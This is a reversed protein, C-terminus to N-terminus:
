ENLPPLSKGCAKIADDLFAQTEGLMGEQPEDVRLEVPLLKTQIQHSRQQRCNFIDFRVSAYGLVFLVHAVGSIMVQCGLGALMSFTRFPFLQTETDHDYMPFKIVSPIGLMPDGCLFRLLLSVALGALSGYTNSWPLWLVCTLQPFLVVYMLDCCLVFLGYITTSFIAVLTGLVGFFVIFFRFMWLMEKSSAQPRFIDQYINKTFITASSLFISDASSMVAGAIACLGIISVPLPVLFSLVMPLMYSKRDDPIPLPGDYATSNWDAASGAVGLVFAPVSFLFSFVAAFSTSLMAVRPSKCALIRQYFSQWTIGGFVLLCLVDAYMWETGAPVEGIWTSSVSTLNVHDSSMAYPCALVLGFAVMLIQIVDTYAVAILGGLFTYVVSVLASVIISITPDIDAIISVTGGLAALVSGSWFLDSFMHPIILLAGMKRGYKYQFPDFMTVYRERRMKPAYVLGSILFGICSGLPLQTQLLGYWAAYEATGNIFGGCVMTATLTFCAIVLGFSRNALM